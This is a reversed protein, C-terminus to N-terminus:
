ASPPASPKSDILRSTTENVDNNCEQLMVMIDEESAGAAIAVHMCDPRELVALMICDRRVIRVSQMSLQLSPLAGLCPQGTADKITEITKRSPGEGRGNERHVEASSAAGRRSRAAM